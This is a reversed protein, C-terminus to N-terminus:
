VCPNPNPDPDCVCKTLEGTFTGPIINKDEDIQSNKAQTSLPPTHTLSLPPSVTFPPPPPRTQAVEYEQWLKEPLLKRLVGPIAVMTGGGIDLKKDGYAVDQLFGPNDLFQLVKVVQEKKLKVCRRMISEFPDQGPGYCKAHSRADNFKHQNFNKIGLTNMARFPLGLAIQHLTLTTTVPDTHPNSALSSVYVSSTGVQSLTRLRLCVARRTSGEINNYAVVTQRVIQSNLIVDLKTKDELKNCSRFAHTHTHTHM